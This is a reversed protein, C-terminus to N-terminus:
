TNKKKKFFIMNVNEMRDMDSPKFGGQSGSREKHKHLRLSAYRNYTIVKRPAELTYLVVVCLVGDEGGGANLMTVQLVKCVSIYMVFFAYVLNDYEAIETKGTLPM